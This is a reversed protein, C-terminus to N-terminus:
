FSNCFLTCGLLQVCSKLHVKKISFVCFFDRITCCCFFQNETAKEIQERIIAEIAKKNKLQTMPDLTAKEEAKLIAEEQM